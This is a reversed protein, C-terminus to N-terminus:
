SMRVKDLSSSLSSDSANGLEALIKGAACPEDLNWPADARSGFGIM